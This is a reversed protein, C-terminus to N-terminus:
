VGTRWQAAKRGRIRREPRFPRGRCQSLSEAHTLIHDPVPLPAQTKDSSPKPRLILRYNAGVLYFENRGAQIILGRGRNNDAPPEKYLTEDPPHRWDKWDAHAQGGGFQALGMYGDFDFEQAGMFEDQAVAHVQGTGQYKLLLPIVAAMCQITKLWYGSSLVSLVMRPSLTSSASFSTVSLITILLPVFCIGSKLVEAAM